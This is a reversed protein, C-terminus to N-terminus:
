FQVLTRSLVEPLDCATPIGLGDPAAYWGRTVLWFQQLSGEDLESVNWPQSMAHRDAERLVQPPATAHLENEHTSAVADYGSAGRLHM